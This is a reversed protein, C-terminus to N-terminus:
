CVTLLCLPLPGGSSKPRSPSPAPFPFISARSSLERAMERVAPIATSFAGTKWAKEETLLDFTEQHAGRDHITIPLGLEQGAPDAPSLRASPKRPSLDYYDLGIEGIALIKPHSAWTRFEELLEDTMEKADHPHLGVTGYIFDYREM